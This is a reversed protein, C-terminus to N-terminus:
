FFAGVELAFFARTDVVGLTDTAAVLRSVRAGGRAFFVSAPKLELWAEGSVSFGPRSADPGGVLFRPGVSLDLALVDRWLPQRVRLQADVGRWTTSVVPLSCSFLTAEQSWGGGVGVSPLMSSADSGLRYRWSLRAQVDDDSMTCDQGAVAGAIGQAHVFAHRYHVELELDSYRQGATGDFLELPKLQAYVGLGVVGNNRLEALSAAGDGSLSLDRVAAGPGVTVAVRVRSASPTWAVVSKTTSLEPDAEDEPPPPPLPAPPPAKAALAAADADAKQKALTSVEKGVFRALEDASKQPIGAANNAYSPTGV